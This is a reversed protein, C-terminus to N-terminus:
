KYYSHQITNSYKFFSFTNNKDKLEVGIDNLKILKVSDDKSKLSSNRIKFRKNRTNSVSRVFGIRNSNNREFLTYFNRVFSHGFTWGGIDFNDPFISM